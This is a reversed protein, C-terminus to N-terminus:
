FSGLRQSLSSHMMILMTTLNPICVSVRLDPLRPTKPPTQDVEVEPPLVSSTRRPLDHVPNPPPDELQRDSSSHPFIPKFSPSLLFCTLPLSFTRFLLFTGTCMLLLSTHTFAMTCCTLHSSAIITGFVFYIFPFHFWPLLHPPISTKDQKL